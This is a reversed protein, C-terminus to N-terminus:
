LLMACLSFFIRHWTDARVCARLAYFYDDCTFILTFDIIKHITQAGLYRVATIVLYCGLMSSSRLGRLVIHCLDLTFSADNFQILAPLYCCQYDFLLWTIILQQARLAIHSVSLLWVADIFFFFCLVTFPFFHSALYWSTRVCTLRLLLWRINIDFYILKKTFQEPLLIDFLM